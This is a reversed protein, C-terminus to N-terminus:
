GLRARRVSRKPEKLARALSWASDVAAARSSSSSRGHFGDFKNHLHSAQMTIVLANQATFVQGIEADLRRRGYHTEHLPQTAAIASVSNDDRVSDGPVFRVATTFKRAYTTTRQKGGAISLHSSPKMARSAM